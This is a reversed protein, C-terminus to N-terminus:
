MVSEVIELAQSWDKLDQTLHNYRKEFDSAQRLIQKELVEDTVSCYLADQMAATIQMFARFVCFNLSTFHTQLIM